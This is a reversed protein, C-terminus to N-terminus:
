VLRLPDTKSHKLKVCLLSPSQHQDVSVDEPFLMTEPDFNILTLFAGCCLLSCNAKFAVLSVIHGDRRLLRTSTTATFTTAISTSCSSSSSSVAISSSSVKHEEGTNQKRVPSLFLQLSDQIHQYSRTCAVECVACHDKAWHCWVQKHSATPSFVDSPQVRIHLFSFCSYLCHLQLTVGCELVGKVKAVLLKQLGGRREAALSTVWKWNPNEDLLHSFGMIDDDEGATLPIILYPTTASGTSTTASTEQLFFSITYSFSHVFQVHILKLPEECM